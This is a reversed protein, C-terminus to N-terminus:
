GSLEKGKIVRDRIEKLCTQAIRSGKGEELRKEIGWARRRARSRMIERQMEERVLYGPTRREVGLIWKLFREHMREISEREKWGWVEVGYGVTWVLTDYLWIRRKWNSGFKKKGIGWIQGMVTAAKAIRERVDAIMERAEQGGNRQLTYGLYKFEKVKEKREV